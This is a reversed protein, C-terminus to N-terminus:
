GANADLLARATTSADTGSVKAAHDWRSKQEHTCRIALRTQNRLSEASEKRGPTKRITEELQMTGDALETVYYSKKGGAKRLRYTVRDTFNTVGVIEFDSGLLAFDRLRQRIADSIEPPTPKKRKTTM